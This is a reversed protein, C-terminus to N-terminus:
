TLVESLRALFESKEVEVFRKINRSGTVQFEFTNSHPLYRCIKHNEILIFNRDDKWIRNKGYDHLREM